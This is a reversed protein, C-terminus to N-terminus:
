LFEDALEIEGTHETEGCDALEHAANKIGIMYRDIIACLMRGEIHGHGTNIYDRRLMCKIHNDRMYKKTVMDVFFGDKTIALRYSKFIDTLVEAYEYKFGAKMNSINLSNKKM